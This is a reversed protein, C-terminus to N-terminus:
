ITKLLFALCIHFFLLNWALLTIPAFTSSGTAPVRRDLLKGSGEYRLMVGFRSNSLNSHEINLLQPHLVSGCSMLSLLEQFFSKFTQVFKSKAAPRELKGLKVGSAELNFVFYM